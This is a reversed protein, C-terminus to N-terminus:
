FICMQKTQTTIEDGEAWPRNALNDNKGACQLLLLLLKMTFTVIRQQLTLLAYCTSGPRVTLLASRVGHFFLESGGGDGGGDSAFLAALWEKFLM